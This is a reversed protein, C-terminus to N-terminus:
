IVLATVDTFQSDVVSLSGFSRFRKVNRLSFAGTGAVVRLRFCDLGDVDDAWIAARADPKTTSIEVNTFEINRSHRLFFGTAPLTGFMDAEPYGLENEAPQMTAWEASGGGLQNLHVDSIKVDEVFSEPIGSIISPYEAVASSSTVNSILIRRMTSPQVGTPGRLRKGVRLFIPSHVVGRMSLNTIAIDEITAGDVTELALGRCRDFICNSITIYRFGGNSETGCKIRGVAKRRQSYTAEKFTGNLMSGYEYAGTVYCNSITINETSRPYGLAFSSKPCIADDWPSNVACNSVRVNRCCDIDIGDRNTDITLGDLIVNDVGTLLIAFHGGMLISIERITVNRCNKLAIAKNGVGPSEVRPLEDAEGRSLGKGWILGSGTISVDELGEGFILSNAWHNHGFDQYAEWPQPSGAPDYGGTTTGEDPVSAALITAGHELYLGIHSKLRITYCAYTGAPFYVTGGGKGAAEDIARNIAPTDLTAGDGTAGYERVNLWGSHRSGGDHSSITQPAAGAESLPLLTATGGIATRIFERRFM